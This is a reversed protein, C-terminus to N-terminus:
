IVIKGELNEFSEQKKAETAEAYVDMTTQIDAHGMISQIAKLNTENECFRTCFTHRLNHTTFPRIPRSPLGEAARRADEKAYDRLIRKLAANITKLVYPRGA